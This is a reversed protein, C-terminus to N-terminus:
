LLSKIADLSHQGQLGYLSYNKNNYIVYEGHPGLKIMIDINNHKGVYIPYKIVIDIDDKTLENIKKKYFELYNTLSHIKKNHLVYPGYRGTKIEYNNIYIIDKGISKTGMQDIVIPNFIDYIKKIVTIGNLEGNTIKDLDTEVQSTFEVCIINSFHQLLYSLVTDGLDTLKIRKKQIPTISTKIDHKITDDECLTHYPEKKSKGKIDTTITYKRNYLTSIISSYTSPRGVGSSELKKVISAENYYQPPNSESEKITSELLKCNTVDELNIESEVTKQSYKLHGEFSLYKVSTIFYGIHKTENNHLHIESVNYIAPKMHSTITKKM